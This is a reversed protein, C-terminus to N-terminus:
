KVYIDVIDNWKALTLFSYRYLCHVHTIQLRYKTGIDVIAYRYFTLMKFVM